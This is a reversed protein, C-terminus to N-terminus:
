GGAVGGAPRCSAGPLLDDPLAQELREAHLRGGEAGLIQFLRRVAGPRVDLALVAGQFNLREVVDVVHTRGARDIGANAVEDGPEAELEAVAGEVAFAEDAALIQVFRM